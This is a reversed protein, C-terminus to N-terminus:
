AYGLFYDNWYQERRTDHIQCDSPLMIFTDSNEPFLMISSRSKTFRFPTESFSQRFAMESWM